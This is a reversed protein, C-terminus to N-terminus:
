DRIPFFSIYNQFNYKKLLFFFLGGGPLRSMVNM